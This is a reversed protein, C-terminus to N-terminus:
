LDWLYDQSLQGTRQERVPSLVILKLLGLTAVVVWGEMMELKNRWRMRKPIRLLLMKM